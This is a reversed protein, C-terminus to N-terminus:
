FLRPVKRAGCSESNLPKGDLRVKISYLMQHREYSNDDVLKMMYEKRCGRLSLFLAIQIFVCKLYCYNGPVEFVMNECQVRM